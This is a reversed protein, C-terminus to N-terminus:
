RFMKSLILMFGQRVHEPTIKADRLWEANLRKVENEFEKSELIKNRIQQDVTNLGLKQELAHVQAEVEKLALNSGDPQQMRKFGAQTAKLASTEIMMYGVERAVNPNLMPNSENIRRQVDQLQTNMQTQETRAKNLSISSLAQSAAVFSDGIAPYSADVPQIHSAPLQGASIPFASGASSGNGYILHPNLGAELYRKMQAQPADYARQENQIDKQQQLLWQQNDRNMANEAEATKVNWKHQRRPGGQIAGNILAVTAAPIVEDIM